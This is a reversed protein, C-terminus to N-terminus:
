NCGTYCSIKSIGKTTMSKKCFWRVVRYVKNVVNDSEHGAFVNFNFPANGWWKWAMQIRILHGSTEMQHTLCNLPQSGNMGMETERPLLAVCKSPQELILRCGTTMEPLNGPVGAMAEIATSDVTLPNTVMELSLLLQWRIILFKSKIRSELLSKPAIM